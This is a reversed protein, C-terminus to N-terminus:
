GNAVPRRRSTGAGALKEKEAVLLFQVPRSYCRRTYSNAAAVFFGHLAQGDVLSDDLSRLARIGALGSQQHQLRALPSMGACAATM